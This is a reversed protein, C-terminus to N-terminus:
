HKGIQINGFYKGRHASIFMRILAFRVRPRPSIGLCPQNSQRDRFYLSFTFLIHGCAHAWANMAIFPLTPHPVERALVPRYYRSLLEM